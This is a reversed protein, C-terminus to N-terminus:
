KINEEKFVLERMKIPVMKTVLRFDKIKNNFNSIIEEDYSASKSDVFRMYQKEIWGENQTAIRM